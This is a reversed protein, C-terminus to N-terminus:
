KVSAKDICDAICRLLAASPVYQIEGTLSTICQVTPEHCEIPDCGAALLIDFFDSLARDIGHPILGPIDPRQTITIHVIGDESM